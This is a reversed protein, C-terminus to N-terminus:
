RYQKLLDSAQAATGVFSAHSTASKFIRSHGNSWRSWRGCRSNGDSGYDASQASQRLFAHLDNDVRYSYLTKGQAEIIADQLIGGIEVYDIIM